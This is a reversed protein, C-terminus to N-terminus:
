DVTELYAREFHVFGFSETAQWYLSILKAEILGELQFFHNLLIASLHRILYCQM